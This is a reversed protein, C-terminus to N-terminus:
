FFTENIERLTFKPKFGISELKSSSYVENGMLKQLKYKFGSNILAAMSFCFLPVKWRPIDKDLVKCLIEYIQSSSYRQGDTAIYIEGSSDKQKEVLILARVLDDVHIMSRSNKVDPLPPFWGKEIGSLMSALNGKVGPGYVLAPRVIDVRTDSDKVLDLLKLEAERKTRGYIGQPEENSNESQSKKKINSSGAKASSVFIFRKVKMLVALKALRITVDVNLAQYLHETKLPNGLDHAYGALHFITSIGELSSAPLTETLLDCTVSNELSNDLIRSVIRIRKNDNKLAKCLRRGIFGTAGTILIDM